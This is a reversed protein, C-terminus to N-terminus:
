PVARSVGAARGAVAADAASAALDIEGAIIAPMIDLGKAFMREEIKLGCKPALEKLYSIAGYHAFRLNGLRITEQASASSSALSAALALLTCILKM